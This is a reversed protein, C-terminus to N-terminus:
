ILFSITFITSVNNCIAASERYGKKRPCVITECIYEKYYYNLCISYVIWCSVHGYNKSKWWLLWGSVLVLWGASRGGHNQVSRKKKWSWVHVSALEYRIGGNGFSLRNWVGRFGFGRIGLVARTQFDFKLIASMQFLAIKSRSKVNELWWHFTVFNRWCM